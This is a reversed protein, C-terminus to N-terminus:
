PIPTNLGLIGYGLKCLHRNIISLRMLKPEIQRDVHCFGVCAICIVGRLCPRASGKGLGLGPPRHPRTPLRKVATKLTETETHLPMIELRLLLKVPRGTKM